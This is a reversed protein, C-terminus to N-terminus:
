NNRAIMENYRSEWRECILKWQDIQDLAKQCLERWDDRDKRLEDITREHERLTTEYESM